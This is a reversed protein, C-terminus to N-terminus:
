MMDDEKDDGADPADLDDDLGEEESEEDGDILEDDHEHEDLMTNLTVQYRRLPLRGM